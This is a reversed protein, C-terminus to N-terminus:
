QHLITERLDNVKKSSIEGEFKKLLKKALNLNGEGTLVWYEIIAEACNLQLKASCPTKIEELLRDMRSKTRKVQLWENHHKICRIPRQFFYRKDEEYWKKQEAASFLFNEGCDVCSIIEDEYFEPITWSNQSKASLKNFDVAIKNKKM